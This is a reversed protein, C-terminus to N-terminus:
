PLVLDLGLNAVFINDGYDAVVKDAVMLDQSRLPRFYSLGLVFRLRSHMAWGLDASLRPAWTYVSQQRATYPAIANGRLDSALAAVGMGVRPRWAMRTRHPQLTADLGIWRTIVECSGERLSLTAPALMSGGFLRVGIWTPRWAVAAAVGVAPSTGGPSWLFASAATLSTRELDELLRTNNTLTVQPPAEDVPPRRLDLEM